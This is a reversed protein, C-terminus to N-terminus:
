KMKLFPRIFIELNDLLPCELVMEHAQDLSTAKIWIFGSITADPELFAGENLAEIRSKVHIGELKLPSGDVYQSKAKWRIMWEQYRGLMEQMQAPSSNQDEGKVLLLFDQM